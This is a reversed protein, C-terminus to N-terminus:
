SQIKSVTLRWVPGGYHFVSRIYGVYMNRLSIQSPCFCSHAICHLQQIHRKVEAMIEHFPPKIKLQADLVVSMPWIDVKM